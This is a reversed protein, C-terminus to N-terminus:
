KQDLYILQGLHYSTHNTRNIIINLKNRYPEKVFDEESVKTHREFWQGPELGGFRDALTENLKSWYSRLESVSPKELGSNEPNHLFAEDLKMYLREGLGLLTIIGDNVAVLHGLLYVGTNRGPATEKSLQEDSLKGLLNNMRGIQLDWNSLVMKIFLQKEIAQGAEIGNM